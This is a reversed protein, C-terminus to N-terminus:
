IKDTTITIKNASDPRIVLFGDDARVELEAGSKVINEKITYVLGNGLRIKIRSSSTSEIEM